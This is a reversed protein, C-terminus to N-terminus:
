GATAARNQAAALVGRQVASLTSEFHLRLGEHVLNPEVREIIRTERAVIDALGGTAIVKVESGMEARLRAVIGETQAVAGYVIGSQLAAVTDRGIATPPAALAIQPLKATRTALADISIQIGPSIAVGLLAGDTGVASFTTATGFNVVIIPAGGVAVGGIAGAALDAGLEHPRDTRIRMLTQTAATFPMPRCGFYTRCGEYLSRDVQPVVSAIVIAEVAALDLQASSFFAQFLVGYEDSTRRQATTVRWRGILRRSADFYALKTDTNGVDITLLM